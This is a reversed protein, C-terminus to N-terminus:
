DTVNFEGLYSGMSCTFPLRGTEAPTFRIVSQGLDLRRAIGLQPILLTGMCGGLQVQTDITWEVPVGKKVTFVNPYFGQDDSVIMSVKQANASPAYNGPAAPANSPESVPPIDKSDTPIVTFSAGPTTMGMTCSFDIRGAERPIFSITKAGTAPLFETLNLDPAVIVRACGAAAIGDIRWEVPIGQKVIFRSPFYDYGIVRMTVIQKGNEIPVPTTESPFPAENRDVLFTDFRIPSGALALGNNVNLFGILLVMVGAFKLFTRQVSGRIFSSLAGVSLLAPLTGLSFFLMTLAGTVPDGKSLVYLQLAQTFGCPLFFTGAGLLFPAAKSDSGTLDHIKHSLFKPMRPMLYRTWPFLKLLQLGLVIMVLSVIIMLWGNLRTSLTLVSGLAGVAAGLITYSLVRGINFYLHPKFKQFGTLNPHISNFKASVAVLLGGTVAMCTSVAAVLGILFVFGYTTGDSVALDPIFNAQKLLFYFSALVLFIAGIEAYDVSTNRHADSASNVPDEQSRVSVHYDQGQLASQFESLSPERSCFLTANGNAHHINVKQVGSIKKFQREILVECSACHMGSIRLKIKKFLHHSM